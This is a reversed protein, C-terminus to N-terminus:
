KSDQDEDKAVSALKISKAFILCGILRTKKAKTLGAHVYVFFEIFKIPVPKSKEDLKETTLCAMFIRFDFPKDDIVTVESAFSSYSNESGPYKDAIFDNIEKVTPSIGRIDFSLRRILTLKDAQPAPKLDQEELKKYIFPDVANNIKWNPNLIDPINNM